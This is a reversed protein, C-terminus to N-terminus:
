AILQGGKSQYEEPLMPLISKIFDRLADSYRTEDQLESEMLILKERAAIVEGELRKCREQAIELKSQCVAIPDQAVEKPAPKAIEQPKEPPAVVESYLMPLSRQSDSLEVVVVNKKLALITAAQGEFEGAAIEIESGVELGGQSPKPNKILTKATAPAITRGEEAIAIAQARVEDPVAAASLMWLASPAIDFHRLNLCKGFKEHASIYNYITPRSWGKLACWGEFGGPRVYRLRDRVNVLREGVQIIQSVYRTGLEEVQLLLVTMEVEVKQLWQRTEKDLVGYDFEQSDQAEVVAAVVMSVM